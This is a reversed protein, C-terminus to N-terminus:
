HKDGAARACARLWNELIQDHAGTRHLEELKEFARLEEASWERVADKRMRDLLAETAKERTPLSCGKDVVWFERGDRMLAVWSYDLDVLDLTVAGIMQGDEREYFELNKHLLPHGANGKVLKLFRKESIQRVVDEVVCPLM